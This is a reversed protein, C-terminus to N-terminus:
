LAIAKLPVACGPLKTYIQDPATLYKETGTLGDPVHDIAPTLMPTAPVNANSNVAVSGASLSLAFLAVTITVVHM